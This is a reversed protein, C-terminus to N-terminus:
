WVNWSSQYMALMWKKWGEDENVWVHRELSVNILQSTLSVYNM